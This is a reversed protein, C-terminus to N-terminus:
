RNGGSFGEIFTHFVGVNEQPGPASEPHYLYGVAKLNKFSVAEISGDLLNRELVEIDANEFEDIFYAHSQATMYIKGDQKRVPFDGFHSGQKSVSLGQAIVMLECGLGIGLMPKDGMLEKLIEITEPYDYPNKPGNSVVYGDANLKKISELSYNNPVLTVNCGLLNLQRVIEQKIGCDIAVVNYKFNPTRSYRVKKTGAKKAWDRAPQFAQIKAMAEEHSVELDCILCKMSGEDRIVKTLERTDLQCLGVIDEEEMVEALTKTYRYNSPKDNYERVILGDVWYQKSESDEDNMGYNGILPYTMLVCTGGYSPDSLMEQYGVMNTNFLLESLMERTSGFGNGIFEMGNELVLKRKM